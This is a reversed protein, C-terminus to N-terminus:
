AARAELDPENETARLYETKFPGEGEDGRESYNLGYICRGGERKDDRARFAGPM